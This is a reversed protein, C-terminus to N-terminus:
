YRQGPPPRVVPTSELVYDKERESEKGENSEAAPLGRDYRLLLVCLERSLFRFYEYLFIRSERTTRDDILTCLSLVISM